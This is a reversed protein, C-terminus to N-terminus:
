LSQWKTSEALSNNKSIVLVWPFQQFQDLTGVVFWLTVTETHLYYASITMKSGFVVVFSNMEFM